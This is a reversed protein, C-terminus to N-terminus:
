CLTAHEFTSRRADADSLIRATTALRIDSTHGHFSSPCNPRNNTPTFLSLRLESAAVIDIQFWPPWFNPVLAVQTLNVRNSRAINPPGTKQSYFVVLASGRNLDKRILTQTSIPM